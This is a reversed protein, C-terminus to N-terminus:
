RGSAALAEIRERVYDVSMPGTELVEPLTGVRRAGEPLPADCNLTENVVEPFKAPHATGLVVVPRENQEIRRAAALGVATHPCVIMGTESKTRVMEARTEDDSVRETGFGLGALESALEADAREANEMLQAVRAGDRGSADFLLREFNSPAQIDMAPSITARTERKPVNKGAMLHVLADNENVASLCRYDDVLGCKGAVYGSFADGFNGTPVVFQLPRGDGLAAQARAFYVSQAAIRLWNISNVAALGTRSQFQADALLTKLIQQTGDFDGDLALNHVNDAGTTTMFRRQVDSIRGEPHLIVIQVARAGAFATAAAGGTDGSTACLITMTEGRASLVHDFVRAILRMAVDKFALSPGHFLEMLWRGEGVQRLPAVADHVFPAYAEEVLRHLVKDDILGGAFASLVRTATDTYSEGPAIRDLLPYQDPVYLGGDPALGARIASLFDTPAARGRTSIYNM